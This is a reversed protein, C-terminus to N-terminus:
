SKPIPASDVAANVSAAFTKWSNYGELPEFVDNFIADVDKAYFQEPATVSGNWAANWAAFYDDILTKFEKDQAQTYIM